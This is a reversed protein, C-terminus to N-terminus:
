FNRVTKIQFYKNVNLEDNAQADIQEFVSPCKFLAAEGRVITMNQLFIKMISKRPRTAVSQKVNNSRFVLEVQDQDSKKTNVLLKRNDADPTM